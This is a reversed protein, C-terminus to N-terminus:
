LRDDGRRNVSLDLHRTSLVELFETGLSRLSLDHERHWTRDPATDCRSVLSLARRKLSQHPTQAMRGFTTPTTAERSIFYPCPRVMRAMGYERRLSDIIIAINEVKDRDSCIESLAVIESELCSSTGYYEGKKRNLLFNM